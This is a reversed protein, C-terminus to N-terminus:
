QPLNNQLAKKEKKKKEVVVLVIIAIFALVLFIIMWFLNEPHKGDLGFLVGGEELVLARLHGNLRKLGQNKYDLIIANLKYDGSRGLSAITAEYATKNENVRLLFTFVKTKDSPDTLTIAITKLIEPVKDYSLRITLNQTGDVPVIGDVQVIKRNNQIFDFDLLSLGSIVPDTTPIIPINEFIESPTLPPTIDGLPSLRAQALVGSSYLGMQNKAFLAYYYQQGLIVNNDLVSEVDGEFIVEGDSIDNPFFKDSRVIRVSTIKSDEPYNWSLLINKELPTATFNIVNVPLLSGSSGVSGSGATSVSPTSTSVSISTSTTQQFGAHLNNNTSNSPGTAVEGGTDELAYSASTSRTGGFNMSDAELVYNGSTMREAFVIEVSTSLFSILVVFGVASSLLSKTKQYHFINM